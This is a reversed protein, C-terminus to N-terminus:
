FETTPISSGSSETHGESLDSDDVHHSGRKVLKYWEYAKALDNKDTERGEAIDYTFFTGLDNKQMASTLLLTKSAPPKRAMECRKFFTAVKKGAMYSTRRFSVMVPLATPDKAESAVLGYVDFSRDYRYAVGEATVGEMARDSNAANFEEVRVYNYKDGKKEFYIWSKMAMIPIIEVPKQKGGLVKKSLSNIIDGTGAEGAAVLQSLGQMLLLKPLLLDKNDIGESGWAGEPMDSVIALEAKAVPALEKHDSKTMYAKGTSVAQQLQTDAKM